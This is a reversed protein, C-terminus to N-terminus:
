SKAKRPILPKALAFGASGLRSRRWRIYRGSTKVAYVIRGDLPSIGVREFAHTGGHHEDIGFSADFHRAAAARAVESHRGYPYAFYRPKHGVVQELLETSRALDEEAETASAAGLDIHGHGHSEVQIGIREAERLEDASMITADCGPPRYWDSEQGLWKTPVFVTAPFGYRELSPGAEHLVGRYGDDFTIAVAPKGRRPFTGEVIDRLSVVNRSRALYAMQEEFVRTAIFLNNPDSSRDCSGVTHYAVVTGEDAPRARPRPLRRPREGPGQQVLERLMRLDDAALVSGSLALLLPYTVLALVIAEADRVGVLLLLAAMALSASVPITLIKRLRPREAIRVFLGVLLIAGLIETALTTWAAGRYSYLPIAVANGAINFVLAAGAIWAIETRHGLAIATMRGLVEIAYFLAAAILVPVIAGAEEYQPGFLTVVIWDAAFPAGIAIPLYFALMSASALEVIRTTESRNRALSIRPLAVNALAWAVFLLSEFFRYAVGYIALPVPGKIVGLLVADIRYVATSLFGAFGLPLGIRFLARVTSRRASRLRIRPFYRGLAVVGFLLGGVSGALYALCIPVLGAGALLAALSLATSLVRNTLVTLAFFEMREFGKFITGIFYSVEDVFLAIGVIVVAQYASPREVLLLAVGFSLLLGAAGLGSLLVLGSAFLESVRERNRAVERVFASDLGWNAFILFLPVFSVAFTFYGFEKPGLARAVIVFFVLTTGKGAVEALLMWLANGASRRLSPDAPATGESAVRGQRGRGSSM